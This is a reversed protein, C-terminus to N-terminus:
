NYIIKRGFFSLFIIRSYYIYIYLSIYLSIYVTFNKAISIINKAPKYSREKGRILFQMPLDFSVGPFSVSKITSNLYDLVNEYQIWNKELIPTYSEIVESPIFDPPLNFVFQSSQSSLRM